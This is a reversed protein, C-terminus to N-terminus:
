KKEENEGQKRIEEKIQLVRGAHEANAKAIAEQKSSDYATQFGSALTAAVGQANMARGTDDPM